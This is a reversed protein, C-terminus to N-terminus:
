YCILLFDALRIPKTVNMSEELLVWFGLKCPWHQTLYSVIVIQAGNTPLLFCFHVRVDWSHSAKISCLVGEEIGSGNKVMFDVIWSQSCSLHCDWLPILYVYVTQCCVTCCRISCRVYCHFVATLQLEAMSAYHNLTAIGLLAQLSM